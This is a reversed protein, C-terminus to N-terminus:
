YKLDKAPSQDVGIRRKDYVEVMAVSAHRSFEQVERHSLGDTLLKTIATARASHPSAPVKVGARQCYEKFVKYLGNDSFSHTTPINGGKGRYSIFLYDGEGASNELRDKVVDAVAQAAWLPIAQDSDKRAKTSRLRLFVTGKSTKRVDALRLKVVESRRLGGGFLVALIAKDRRGKFTSCDPLALIEMVKDFTIMETPRKQGSKASPSPVKESDFPNSNNYLRASILMKYIRRLAAFKKSITANALTSQYGDRVTAKRRVNSQIERSESKVSTQHRPKIGQRGDLWKKYAVAHLDDAQLFFQAAETSGAEAGLFLCWEKIISMYTRQTNISKLELFASIRLWLKATPDESIKSNKVILSSM